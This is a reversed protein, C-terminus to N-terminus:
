QGQKVQNGYALGVIASFFIIRERDSQLEQSIPWLQSVVETNTELGRNLVSMGKRLQPLMMKSAERFENDDMKMVDHLPFYPLGPINRALLQLLVVHVEDEKPFADSVFVMNYIKKYFDEIELNEVIFHHVLVSLFQGHRKVIDNIKEDNIRKSHTDDTGIDYAYEIVTKLEHWPKESNKIYEEYATFYIDTSNGKATALLKTLKDETKKM